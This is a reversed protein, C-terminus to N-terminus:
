RPSKVHWAASAQSNTYGTGAVVNPGNMMWIYLKDTDGAAPNMNRWLIDSRGDGNFDAMGQVRWDTSIPDLYRAAKIGTGDMLWLFM